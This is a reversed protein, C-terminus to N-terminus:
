LYKISLFDGLRKTRTVLTESRSPGSRLAYGHHVTTASKNLFSLPQTGRAKSVFAACAEDRRTSLRSLGAAGLANLYSLDPFMIKLAKVM